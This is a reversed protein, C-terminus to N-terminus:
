HQRDGGRQNRECDSVRLSHQEALPAAQVVDRGRGGEEGGKVGGEGFEASVEGGFIDRIMSESSLEIVDLMFKGLDDHLLDEFFLSTRRLLAFTAPLRGFM